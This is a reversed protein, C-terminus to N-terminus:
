RLRLPSEARTEERPMGLGLVFWICFKQSASAPSPKPCIVFIFVFLIVFINSTATYLLHLPCVQSPVQAAALLQHRSRGSRPRVFIFKFVILIILCCLYSYLCLYWFPLCFILAAQYWSKYWFIWKFFIVDGYFHIAFWGSIKDDLIIENSHCWFSFFFSKLRDELYYKVNNYYVPPLNPKKTYQPCYLVKKSISM